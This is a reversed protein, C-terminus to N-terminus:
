VGVYRRTSNEDAAHAVMRPHLIELALDCDDGSTRAAHAALEDALEGGLAAVDGHAVEGDLLHLLAAVSARASAGAPVTIVVWM